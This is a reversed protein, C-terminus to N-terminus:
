VKQPELELNPSLILPLSMLIYPELLRAAQKPVRRWSEVSQDPNLTSSEPNLTLNPCRDSKNWQRIWPDSEDVLGKCEIFRKVVGSEPEIM